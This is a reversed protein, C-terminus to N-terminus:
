GRYARPHICGAEDLRPRIAAPSPYGSWGGSGQFRGGIAQAQGVREERGHTAARTPSSRPLADGFTAWVCRLPDGSRIRSGGPAGPGYAPCVTADERREYASVAITGGRLREPRICGGADSRRGWQHPRLPSSQAQRSAVPRSRVATSPPVSRPNGATSEPVSGTSGAACGSSIVENGSASGAGAGAPLAKQDSPADRSGTDRLISREHNRLGGCFNQNRSAPPPLFGLLSRTIGAPRCRQQSGQPWDMLEWDCPAQLVFVAGTQRGRLSPFCRVSDPLTCPSGLVAPRSM